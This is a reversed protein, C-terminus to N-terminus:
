TIFVSDFLVELYLCRDLMEGIAMECTFLETMDVQRMEITFIRIAFNHYLFSTLFLIYFCKQFIHISFTVAEYHRVMNDIAYVFCFLFSSSM